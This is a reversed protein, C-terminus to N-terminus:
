RHEDPRSFRFLARHLQLSEGIWAILVHIWLVTEFMIFTLFFRKFRYAPSISFREYANQKKTYIVFTRASHEKRM